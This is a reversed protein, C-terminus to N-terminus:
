SFFAHLSFFLQGSHWNTQCSPQLILLLDRWRQVTHGTREAKKWSVDRQDQVCLPISKDYSSSRPQHSCSCPGCVGSPVLRMLRTGELVSGSGRTRESSTLGEVSTSSPGDCICFPYPPSHMVKLWMDGRLKQGSESFEDRSVSCPCRFAVADWDLWKLCPFFTVKARIIAKKLKSNAM